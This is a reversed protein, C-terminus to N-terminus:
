GLGDRKAKGKKQVRLLRSEAGKGDIQGLWDKEEVHRERGESTKKKIRRRSRRIDEGVRERM